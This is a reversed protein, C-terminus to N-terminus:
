FRKLCSILSEKWHPIEINFTKKLKSKDLVSYFPRVAKTPYDKSLIPLVKCNLNSLNMIEVAFDYWSCAGENSFHYIGSNEKNLQPLIEVIAVALDKAYTPTGVQDCVVNLTEREGGLRRMTKVFNNGYSSYLWATRIIAYVKAYEAIKQEGTLKTKGYVSVPNTADDATYPRCNSGDFVYDTSIHIIICGTKALNKPGDENVKKALEADDEAKDVATYAACNIITGINNEKVFDNVAKENTIDLIDADTFIADPLLNRIENGLQGNAGTVLIKNSM